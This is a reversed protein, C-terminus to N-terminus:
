NKSKGEERKKRAFIAYKCAYDHGSVESNYNNVVIKIKTDNAPEFTLLSIPDPDSDKLLLSDNETFLFLDTDLVGTEESFAVIKYSYAKSFDYLNFMSKGEAIKAYQMKVKKYGVSDFQATIRQEATQAASKGINFACFLLFLYKM